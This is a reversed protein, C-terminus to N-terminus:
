ADCNGAGISGVQVVGWIQVHTDADASLRTPEVIHM